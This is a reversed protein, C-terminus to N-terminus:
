TSEPESCFRFTFHFVHKNPTIYVQFGFSVMKWCRRYIHPTLAYFSRCYVAHLTGLMKMLYLTYFGLILLQVNVYCTPVTVCPLNFYGDGACQRDGQWVTQWTVLSLPWMIWPDQIIANLWWWQCLSINRNKM